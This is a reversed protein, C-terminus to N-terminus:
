VKQKRFHVEAARWLDIDFQRERCIPKWYVWHHNAFERFHSRQRQFQEKRQYLQAFNSLTNLNLAKRFASQEEWTRGKGMRFHAFHFSVKWIKFWVCNQLLEVFVWSLHFHFLSRQHVEILEDTGGDNQHPGRRCNESREHNDRKPFRFMAIQSASLLWSWQPHQHRNLINKFLQLSLM